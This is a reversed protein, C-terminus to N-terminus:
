RDKKNKVKSTRINGMQLGPSNGVVISTPGQQVNM